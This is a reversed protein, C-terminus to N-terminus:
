THMKRQEYRCLKRGEEGVDRTSKWGSIRSQVVSGDHCLQVRLKVRIIVYEVRTGEEVTRESESGGEM